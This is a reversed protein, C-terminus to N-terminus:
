PTQDPIQPIHGIDMAWPLASRCWGQYKPTLQARQKVGGLRLNFVLRNELSTSYIASGCDACFALVRKNGSAATKVYTKPQGSLKFNETKVPVSARYPAGSITQCDTCHCIVVYDPNIEADYSIRGCHCGGEIRMRGNRTQGGFRKETGTPM